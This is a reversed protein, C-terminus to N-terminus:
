GLLRNKIGGGSTEMEDVAENDVVVLEEGFEVKGFLPLIKRGELLDQLIGDTLIFGEIKKSRIDFVVDKVTGLEEGEKSFVKAGILRGEDPFSGSYEARGIRKISEPSKIVLADSGLSLVDDPLLVKKDTSLGSRLLFAKIERDQLSFLIDKVAGANMGGDACIVPLNLVESYRHLM